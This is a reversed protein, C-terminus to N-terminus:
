GAWILPWAAPLAALPWRVSEAATSRMLPGCRSISEGLERFRAVGALATSCAPLCKCAVACDSACTDACCVYEATDAREALTNACCPGIRAIEACAGTDSCACVSMRSASAPWSMVTVDDASPMSIRPLWRTVRCAAPPLTVSSPASMTNLPGPRNETLPAVCLKTPGALSAALKGAKGLVVTSSGSITLASSTCLSPAVADATLFAADPNIAPKPPAAPAPAPVPSPASPSAMGLPRALRPWVAAPAAELSDCSAPWALVSAPSALFGIPASDAAGPRSPLALGAIPPSSFVALFVIPMTECACPMTACAFAMTAFGMDASGAAEPMSPETAGPALPMISEAADAAPVTDCAAAKMLSGEAANGAAVSM